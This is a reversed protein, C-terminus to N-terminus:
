QLVSWTTSMHVEKHQVTEQSTRCSIIDPLEAPQAGKDPSMPLCKGDMMFLGNGVRRAEYQCM